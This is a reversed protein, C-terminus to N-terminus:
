PSVRGAIGAPVSPLPPAYHRRYVYDGMMGGFTIASFANFSGITASGGLYNVVLMGAGAGIGFAIMQTIPDRTTKPTQDTGNGDATTNTPIKSEASANIMDAEQAAIYVTDLAQQVEPSISTSTNIVVGDANEAASIAMFFFNAGIFSIFALVLQLSKRPKYM